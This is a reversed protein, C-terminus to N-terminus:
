VPLWVAFASGKGVESQARIFGKHNEVVKKVISLGVGTGGYQQKGHLRAFMQFIKEAHRQDFGIGNDRVTIVQYSIENDMASAASIVVEPPTNRKSYKLANSILNQFLQQLQRRYGRVVPLKGVSIDAQKEEIALELDELVRQMNANLDVPIMEHPYQSVHSYLLLDDILAGMHQTANQIRDLSQKESENLRDDLQDKLRHTFLQIKRVPEKLDHSAAHAFEELNANSRELEANSAELLYNSEALAKTRYAVVEEIKKRAIVQDTVETAVDMVGVVVGNESLPTYTFNFYRDELVGARELPVLVEQGYQAIGTQYVEKFTNYADSGRLEAIAELLPKGIIADTRRIMELAKENATDIIMEEGRFIFIAVPAKRIISRFREESEALQQRALVQETVDVAMHHVGWVKGRKDFLPKYTFNYFGRKLVGNTMLYAEADPSQYTIGSAFVQDLLDPFPQSELEPLAERFSKGVITRDKGWYNLMINNVYTICNDSGTYLATAVTSEEVLSRFRLENEELSHRALISATVDQAIGGFRIIAGSNDFYATGSFNVWRLKGDEAGVTRHTGNYLGKNVGRLAARVKRRVEDVDDPHTLELTREYAISNCRHLGYLESCHDDWNVINRALDVEWVGIGAANIAFRIREADQVFSPDASEADVSRPKM